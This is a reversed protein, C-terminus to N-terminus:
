GRSLRRTPGAQGPTANAWTRLEGLVKIGNALGKLCSRPVEFRWFKGTADYALKFGKCDVGSTPLDLSKGWVNGPHCAGIATFETGDKDSMRIDVQAVKSCKGGPGYVKAVVANQGNSVFMKKVDSAGPMTQSEATVPGAMGLLLALAALLAALPKAAPIPRQVSFM